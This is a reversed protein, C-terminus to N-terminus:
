HSDTITEMDESANFPVLPLMMATFGLSSIWELMFQCNWKTTKVPSNEPLPVILVTFVGKTM